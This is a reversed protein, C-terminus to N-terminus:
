YVKLFQVFNRVIREGARAHRAYVSATQQRISDLGQAGLVAKVDDGAGSLVGDIDDETFEFHYQFGYLRNRFRFAQNKCTPTTSLLINGAPPAPAPPSPPNAPAPLRPLDFTDFHWHFMPVGDTLGFVVPDTGGPFPFTVGAWGLEPAPEAPADAGSRGPRTNPYV